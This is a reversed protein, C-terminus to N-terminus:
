REAAILTMIHSNKLERLKDYSKWLAMQSKTFKITATRANLIEDMSKYFDFTLYNVEHDTGFRSIVKALGWGLRGNQAYNPGASKLEMQEYEYSKYPDVVMYNTVLYNFPKQGPKIGYSGKLSLTLNGTKVIRDAYQKQHEQIEYESFIKSPENSFGSGPQIHVYLFTTTPEGYSNNSIQWMDWGIKNGMDIQEKHMKSFVNKEAEIHKEVDTNLVTVYDFYIIPNEQSFANTTFLIVLFSLITNKM